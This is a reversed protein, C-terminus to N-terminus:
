QISRLALNLMERYGDGYIVYGEMAVSGACGVPGWYVTGSGSANACPNAVHCPPCPGPAVVAGLWDLCNARPWFPNGYTYNGPLLADTPPPNVVTARTAPCADAIAAPNVAGAFGMAILVSGVNTICSEPYRGEAMSAFNEAAIRLTFMNSKVTAERSRAYMGLMHPYVALGFIAVILMFVLLEVINFGRRNNGKKRDSLM